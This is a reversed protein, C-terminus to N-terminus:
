EALISYVECNREHIAQLLSEVEQRHDSLLFITLELGALEELLMQLPSRPAWYALLGADGLAELRERLPQYNAQYRRHEYVYRM